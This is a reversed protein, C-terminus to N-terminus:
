AFMKEVNGEVSIWKDFAPSDVSPMANGTSSAADAVAAPAAVKKGSPLIKTFLYLGTYMGM